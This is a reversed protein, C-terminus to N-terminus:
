NETRHVLFQMIQGVRQNSFLVSTCYFQRHGGGLLLLTMAPEGLM